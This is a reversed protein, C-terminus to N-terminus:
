QAEISVEIARGYDYNDRHSVLDVGVRESLGTNPAPQRPAQNPGEGPRENRETGADWLYVRATVDGTVPTTGEFLAMGADAPAYFCDNSQGYMTTFSLRDGPSADFSFRFANGPTAPGPGAEGVPTDFVTGGGMALLAPNGDEAQAELGPSALAGSAFLPKNAEHVVYVGPSLPSPGGPASRLTVTFRTAAQDPSTSSSSSCAALAFVAAVAAAAFFAHKM